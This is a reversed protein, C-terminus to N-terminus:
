GGVIKLHLLNTMFFKFFFRNLCSTKLTQNDRAMQADKGNHKDQGKRRGREQEVAKRRHKPGTEAESLFSSM